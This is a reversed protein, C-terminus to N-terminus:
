FKRLLVWISVKSYLKLYSLSYHSLHVLLTTFCLVFMPMPIPQMFFFLCCNFNFRNTYQHKYKGLATQLDNVANSLGTVLTALQTINRCNNAQGATCRLCAVVVLVVYIIYNKKFM